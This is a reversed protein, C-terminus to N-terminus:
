SASRAVQHGLPLGQQFAGISALTTAAIARLAETTLFGQHATVLVNPFTLLRAFVDDAIGQTSRDEFFLAAEEEYVDIGLYGLHRAKLSRVAARTDILGGRSTNILMVGARMQSLAVDGILHFTEPLLPCHLTIIDSRRCLEDFEVYRAGLARVEPSPRVDVALVDCGFGRFIGVVERGIAGTGVVGVTKGFLDFGVMGELAFNSERVRNYARHIRRNLALVLALTHEAVAHPSYRPVHVVRLGLDAAAQLDVHNYGACRLAILQTGGAALWELVARDLQDNVFACICPTGSALPATETTLRPELYRLEHGATANAEDLYVRDYARTSFVHVRM